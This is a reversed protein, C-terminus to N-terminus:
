PLYPLVHKVVTGAAIGRRLTLYDDATVAGITTSTPVMPCYKLFMLYQKTDCNRLSRLLWEDSIAVNQWPLLYYQYWIDRHNLYTHMELDLVWRMKIDSVRCRAEPDPVDVRSLVAFVPNNARKFAKQRVAYEPHGLQSVCCALWMSILTIM